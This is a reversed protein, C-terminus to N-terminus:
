INNSMITIKRKKIKVSMQRNKKGLKSKRTTKKKVSFLKRINEGICTNREDFGVDNLKKRTYIVCCDRGEDDDDDHSKKASVLRLVASLSQSFSANPSTEDNNNYINQCKKEKGWKKKYASKFLLIIMFIIIDVNRISRCLM